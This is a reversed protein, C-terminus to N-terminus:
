REHPEWQLVKPAWRSGRLPPSSCDRKLGRWPDSGTNRWKAIEPVEDPSGTNRLLRPMQRPGERSAETWVM